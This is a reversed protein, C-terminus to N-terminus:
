RRVPKALENLYEEISTYGDGDRDAAADKPDRPNLGHAREWQDPMGDGDNDPLPRASRYAPWGGAQEPTDIIRGAGNRVDAVIRQDVADRVPRTCGAGALVAEFAERAPTATVPPAAFPEEVVTVLKRGKRETINFMLRNDGTLDARGEVFNDRIYFKADATPAISVPKKAPNTSPGPKIYNAVYNASVFDTVTGLCQYGYDYTVNNRVDFTPWPKRHYADGIMPNRGNNHAWLNHHLTVGGTARVLSGYSHVGKRHVSRMLGESSICWQVTINRIRGSPSLNEDVAWSASCHDIIVNEGGDTVTLGDLAQGAATGLRSRIFRLIVDHTAIRLPYNRLCIGDGPASQGAITAFPEKLQLESKLDIIGSVGFVIVRPGGTECAARLSGPGSDALTTVVLVRGGRGGPTGAGFGEAGPFAPVQAAFLRAALLAFAFRSM